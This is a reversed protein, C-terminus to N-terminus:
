IIGNAYEEHQKQVVDTLAEVIIDNFVAATLAAEITAGNELETEFTCISAPVLHKKVYNTVLTVKTEDTLDVEIISFESM